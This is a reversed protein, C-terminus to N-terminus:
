YFHRWWCLNVNVACHCNPGTDGLTVHLPSTHLPAYGVVGPILDLLLPIQGM